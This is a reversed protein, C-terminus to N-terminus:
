NKQNKLKEVVQMIEKHKLPKIFIYDDDEGVNYPKLLRLLQFYEGYGVSKQETISFLTIDWFEVKEGNPAQHAAPDKEFLTLVGESMAFAGALKGEEDRYYQPKAHYYESKDVKRYGKEERIEEETLKRFLDKLFGM